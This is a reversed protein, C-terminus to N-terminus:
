CVPVSCRLSIQAPIVFVKSSAIRVTCRKDMSTMGMRQIRLSSTENPGFATMWCKRQRENIPRSGPDNQHELSVSFRYLEKFHRLEPRFVM